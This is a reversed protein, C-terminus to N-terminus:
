GNNDKKLATIEEKKRKALISFKEIWIQIKGMIEDDKPTPTMKVLASGLASLSCLIILLEEYYEIIFDLM